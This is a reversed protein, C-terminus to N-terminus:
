KFILSCSMCHFHVCIITLVSQKCCSCVNSPVRDAPIVYRLSQTECLLSFYPQLMSPIVECWKAWQCATKQWALVRSSNPLEEITHIQLSALDTAFPDGAQHNNVPIWPQQGFPQTFAHGHPEVLLEELPCIVIGKTGYVRRQPPLAICEALEANSLPASNVSPSPLSPSSKLPSTSTHWKLASPVRFSMVSGSYTLLVSVFEAELCGFHFHPSISLIPNRLDSLSLSHLLWYIEQLIQPLVEIKGQNRLCNELFILIPRDHEQTHIWEVVEPWFTWNMLDVVVFIIWWPRGYQKSRCLIMNIPINKLQIFHTVQMLHYVDHFIQILWYFHVQGHWYNKVETMKKKCIWHLHNPLRTSVQKIAFIIDFSSQCNFTSVCEGVCSLDGSLM